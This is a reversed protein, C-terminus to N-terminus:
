NKKSELLAARESRKAHIIQKQSPTMVNVILSDMKAFAERKLAVRASLPLATKLNVSDQYHVYETALMNVAERQQASWSIDASYMAIISTAQENTTKRTSNQATLVLPIMALFAFVFLFRANTVILPLKM